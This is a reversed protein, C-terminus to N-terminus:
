GADAKASASASSGGTTGGAKGEGSAINMVKRKEGVWKKQAMMVGAARFLQTAAERLADESLYTSKVKHAICAQYLEWVVLKHQDIMVVGFIAEAVGKCMMSVYANDFSTALNAPFPGGGLLTDTNIEFPAKGIVSGLKTTDTLKAKAALCEGDERNM